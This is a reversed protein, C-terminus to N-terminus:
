AEAAVVRGLQEALEQPPVLSSSTAFGYESRILNYFTGYTEVTEEVVPPVLVRVTKEERLANRMREVAAQLRAVVAAQFAEHLQLVEAPTAWPQEPLSPPAASSSSAPRSPSSLFATCRDLFARLASTLSASSLRILDECARKLATDLDMKADVMVEAGAMQALHPLGTWLARPNFLVGSLTSAPARLLAALAEGLEVGRERRVLEVGGVMEKLGLLHRILFLQADAQRNGEAELKDDAPQSSPSPPLAAILSAASVLSQRCLAVAEAAFDLFIAQNVCRELRGLVERTTRVTPYEGEGVEEGGGGAGGQAKLVGELVAGSAVFGGVESQVVAQARFVLRTQADQLIPAVLPAFRLRGLSAAASQQAQPQPQSPPRAGASLTPLALSSSPPSVPPSIPEERPALDEDDEGLGSGEADVGVDTDLAMLAGLVGCLDCLVALSPEHLIRPRLVDYLTDCLTSLFRYIEEEAGRGFFGRALEWEEMCVGRLYGCGTKALGVLEAKGPDMRRVEEALLPSLLSSRVSFLTTYCDSLLPAYDEALSDDQPSQSQTQPQNPALSSRRSSLRSSSYPPTASTPDSLSPAPAPSCRAELERLLIRLTPALSTFKQHLLAHLAAESLERGSMKGKVEEGVRKVTSCFYMKILTMSRTLCQQFRILYLPADHFDRNARLYELCVGVRDLGELFEARLVVEEGPENLLRVAKELERFYELRATLAEAVELLHKQEDLMGECAAQLAASNEAVYAENAQLESVLGRAADLSGLLSACTEIHSALLALYAHYGSEQAAELASEVRTFYDHFQQPTAIPGLHALAALSLPDALADDGAGSNAAADPAASGPRPSGAPTSSASLVSALDLRSRTNRPLTSSTSTSTALQHHQHQLHPPLPKSSTSAAVRQVSASEHSSLPALQTWDDLTTRSTSPRQSAM